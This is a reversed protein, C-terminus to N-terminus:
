LKARGQGGEVGSQDQQHQHGSVHVEHWPRDEPPGQVGHPEQHRGHPHDRGFFRVLRGGEVLDSQAEASRFM